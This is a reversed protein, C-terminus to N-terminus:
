RAGRDFTFAEALRIPYDPERRLAWRAVSIQREVVSSTRLIASIVPYGHKRTEKYRKRPPTNKQQNLNEMVSHDKVVKKTM